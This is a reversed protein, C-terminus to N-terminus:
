EPQSRSLGSLAVSVAHNNSAHSMSRVLCVRDLLGALRPLHECVRVGPLRAPITAFLGRRERPPAPNPDLTDMQSPPASLYLVIVARAKGFTRAPPPDAGATGAIAAGFLATGTRGLFDRRSPTAPRSMDTVGSYGRLSMRLLMTRCAKAARRDHRDIPVL